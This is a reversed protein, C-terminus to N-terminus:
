PEALCTAHVTRALPEADPDIALDALVHSETVIEIRRVSAERDAIARCLSDATGDGIARRLQSEVILPDDSEGIVLLSLRTAQGDATVGVASVLEGVEGRASAYMPYESLPFSDRGTWLPSLM